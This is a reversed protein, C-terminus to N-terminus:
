VPGSVCVTCRAWGSRLAAGAMVILEDDIAKDPELVQGVDDVGEDGIMAVSPRSARDRPRPAGKQAPVMQAFSVHRQESHRCVGVPWKHRVTARTPLM